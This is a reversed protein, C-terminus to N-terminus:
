KQPRSESMARLHAQTSVVYKKFRSVYCALIMGDALYSIKIAESGSTTRLGTFNIRGIVSINQIEWGLYKFIHRQREM